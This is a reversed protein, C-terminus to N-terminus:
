IKGPYVKAMEPTLEGRDVMMQVVSHDRTIQRIGKQNIVYARSDGVNVISVRRGRVLAAVLTTGM